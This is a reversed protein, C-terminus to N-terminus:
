PKKNKYYGPNLQKTIEKLYKRYLKGNKSTRFVFYSGKSSVYITDTRGSEKNYLTYGSNEYGSQKTSNVTFTKGKLTYHQAKLGGTTAMLFYLLLVIIAIIRGTYEKM